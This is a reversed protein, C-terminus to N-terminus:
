SWEYGLFELTPRIHSELVRMQEATLVSRWHEARGGVVGRELFQIGKAPDDIGLFRSVREWAPAPERLLEEYRLELYRCEPLRRGEIVAHAVGERWQAACTALM